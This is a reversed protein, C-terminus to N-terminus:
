RAETGKLQDLQRKTQANMPDLELAKELSKIAAEKDNKKQQAQSLGVYTRASMPYYDLNLQLWAM